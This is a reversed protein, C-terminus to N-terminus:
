QRSRARELIRRAEDPGMGYREAFGAVDLGSTEFARLLAAERARRQSAEDLAAETLANISEDRGRVRTAYAERGLGSADFARAIRERLWPRLDQPSRAQRRRFVEVLAHHRQEPAVDEVRQGQLDHRAQGSAVAVLYRTARTHQALAAKLADANLVEGHAALLDEYVGRKLPRPEPGFLAPYWAALQDLAPHRTAPRASASAEDPTSPNRRAPRRRARAPPAQHTSPAKPADNM